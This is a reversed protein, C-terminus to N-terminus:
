LRIGLFVLLSSILPGLTLIGSKLNATFNMETQLLSDLAKRKEITDKLNDMSDLPCLADRIKQGAISLEFYAPFYIFLLLMTYTLGGFIVYTVPFVEGFEPDISIVVSRIAVVILPVMSLLAGSVNLFFQLIRRYNLLDNILDFPQDAKFQENDQLRHVIGQVLSYVLFTGLIYPLFTLFLSISNIDIIRQVGTPVNIYWQRQADPYFLNLAGTVIISSAGTVVAVTILEV